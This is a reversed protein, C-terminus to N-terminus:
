SQKKNIKKVRPNKFKLTKNSSNPSDDNSTTLDVNTDRYEYEIYTRNLISSPWPSPRGKRLSFELSGLYPLTHTSKQHCLFLFSLTKKKTKPNLTENLCPKLPQRM